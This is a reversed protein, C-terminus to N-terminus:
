PFMNVSASLFKKESITKSNFYQTVIYWGAPLDINQSIEPTDTECRYVIKGSIDSIVISKLQDPLSGGFSKPSKAKEPKGRFITMSCTKDVPTAIICIEVIPFARDPTALRINKYILGVGSNSSADEQNVARTKFETIYRKLNYVTDGPALIVPCFDEENFTTEINCISKTGDSNEITLLDPYRYPLTLDNSFNELILGKDFSVDSLRSYFGKQMLFSGECTMKQVTKGEYREHLTDGYLKHIYRLNKGDPINALDVIEIKNNQGDIDKCLIKLIDDSIYDSVDIREEFYEIVEVEAKANFGFSISLIVFLFRNLVRLDKSIHNSLINM